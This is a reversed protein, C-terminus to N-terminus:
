WVKGRAAVTWETEMDEGRVGYVRDHLNVVVCVHAPIVNVIEGVDPPTECASVDVYAHEENLRYIKAQPYQTIHGYVGDVHDSSLTKSGCDLIAREPAPRSVVAARVTLACDDLAAYGDTVTRWDNFVYTGVRIETLEPVEHAHAAAGIGGGSIVDVGIGREHLQTLAEQLIPRITPFSPYILLGAFHLHEDADVKQALDVAREVSAGARHQDSELEVLVRLPAGSDKAAESLGALTHPSDASVTVRNYLAIDMLRRTKKEGVINYPIQIDHIGAEAFVEAESVKQCAIGAAGAAIQMHAIAPIKHTKTHPRFAIGLANCREQMAAINREMRDLDIVLSPTDLDTIHM